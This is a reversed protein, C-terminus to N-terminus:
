WGLAKRSGIVRRRWCQGGSRSLQLLRPGSPRRALGLLLAIVGGQCRQRGKRKEASVVMEDGRVVAVGAYLVAPKMMASLSGGRRCGCGLGRRSPSAASVPRGVVGGVNGRTSDIGPWGLGRKSPESWSSTSGSAGGDGGRKGRTTGRLLRSLGNSRASSPLSPLDARDDSTGSLCLPESTVGYTGLLVAVAPMKQCSPGSQVAIMALRAVM